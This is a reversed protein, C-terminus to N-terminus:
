DETWLRRIIQVYEEMRRGRETKPINSAEFEKDWWGNVVGFKVRGNSLVDLSAIEKAVALPSQIPLVIASTGLSIRSTKSALAALTITPSLWTTSYIPSAVLLHDIVWLGEFGLEESIQAFKSLRTLSPVERGRVGGCFNPVVLGFNM